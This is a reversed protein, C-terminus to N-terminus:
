WSGGLGRRAIRPGRVSQWNSAGKTEGDVQVAAGELDVLLGRDDDGAGSVAAVHDAHGGVVHERGQDGVERADPGHVGRREVALGVVDEDLRGAERHLGAV